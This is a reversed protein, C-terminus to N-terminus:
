LASRISLFLSVPVHTTYMQGNQLDTITDEVFISSRGCLSCRAWAGGCVRGMGRTWCRTSAFCLHSGCIDDIEAEEFDVGGEEVDSGEGGEQANEHIQFDSKLEGYTKLNRAEDATYKHIM